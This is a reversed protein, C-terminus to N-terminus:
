GVFTRCDTINDEADCIPRCHKASVYKWENGTMILFTPYGNKNQKVDYVTTEFCREVSEGKNKYTYLVRFM